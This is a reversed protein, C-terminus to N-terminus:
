PPSTMGSPFVHWIQWDKRICWVCLSFVVSECKGVSVSVFGVVRAVRKPFFYAREDTPDISFRTNLFGGVTMTGPPELERSDVTVTAAGV